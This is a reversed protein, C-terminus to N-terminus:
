NRQGKRSPQVSPLQEAYRKFYDCAYIIVEADHKRRESVEKKFQVNNEHNAYRICEMILEARSIADDCAEKSFYQTLAKELDKKSIKRKAIEECYPNITEFIFKEADESVTMSITEVMSNLSMEEMTM